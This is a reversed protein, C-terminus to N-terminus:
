DYFLLLYPALMSVVIALLTEQRAVFSEPIFMIVPIDIMFFRIYSISLLLSANVVFCCLISSLMLVTVLETELKDASIKATRISIFMILSLSSFFKLSLMARKAVVCLGAMGLEGVLFTARPVFEDGTLCAADFLPM